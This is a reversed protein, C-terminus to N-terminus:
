VLPTAFVSHGGWGAQGVVERVWYWLLIPLGGSSGRWGSGQGVVVRVEYLKGEETQLSSFMNVQKGEQLWHLLGLVAKGSHRTHGRPFKEQSPFSWSGQIPDLHALAVSLLFVVSLTSFEM